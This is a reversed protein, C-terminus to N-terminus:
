GLPVVIEVCTGQDVGSDIRIDGRMRWVAERALTLGLGAGQSPLRTTFFPDFVRPLLDPAIGVGTDRVTMHLRDDSVWAKLEIAHLEGQESPIAQIANVLLNVIVPGLAAFSAPCAPLDQMQVDLRAKTRYTVTTLTACARAFRGFDLSGSTAHRAVASLLHFDSVVSRMQRSSDSIDHVLAAIPQLEQEGPCQALSKEIQGAALAIFTAPNNVEHVLGGALRGMTAFYDLQELGALEADEGVGGLLM